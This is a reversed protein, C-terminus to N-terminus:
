DSLQVVMKIEFSAREWHGHCECKLKSFGNEELIGKSVLLNYVFREMLEEWDTFSSPFDRELSIELRHPSASIINGEFLGNELDCILKQAFLVSKNSLDNSDDKLVAALIENIKARHEEYLRQATTLPVFEENQPILLKTYTYECRDRSGDSTKFTKELEFGMEQLFNKELEDPEGPYDITRSYAHSPFKSYKKFYDQIKTFCRQASALTAERKKEFSIDYKERAHKQMIPVLETTIIDM